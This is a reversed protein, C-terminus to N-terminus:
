FPPNQFIDVPFMSAQRAGNLNGAKSCIYLDDLFIKWKEKGGGRPVDKYDFQKTNTREISKTVM